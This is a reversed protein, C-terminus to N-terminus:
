RCPPYKGYVGFSGSTCDVLRKRELWFRLDNPHLKTNLVVLCGLTRAGKAYLNHHVAARFNFIPAQCDAFRLTGALDRQKLVGGLRARLARSTAPATVRASSRGGKTM